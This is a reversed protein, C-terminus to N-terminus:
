QSAGLLWLIEETIEGLPVIKDIVGMDIAVKAMGFITSSKEDQAITAGGAKKIRAMGEAGDTSMGTLIVGICGRGFVEVASILLSDCSPKFFEYPKRKELIVRHNPSIKMNLESPSIFIEGPMLPMEPRAIQIKLATLPQLWEVMGDAFGESIHQAIVIPCPFNKPMKSLIVSLANPGGTSAAIAVIKTHSPEIPVDEMPSLSPRKEKPYKVHNIVKVRSLSKVRDILEGPNEPNVQSKPFLELAGKSVATVSTQADSLSSIVLIPVARNSMIEEVAELGNMVPMEIDMTILDPNLFKSMEIARAGNEAEGIVEIGGDTLLIAKIMERVLSSDDVIM